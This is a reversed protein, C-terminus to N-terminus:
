HDLSRHIDGYADLTNNIETVADYLGKLHPDTLRYSPDPLCDTIYEDILRYLQEKAHEAWKKFAQEDALAQDAPTM